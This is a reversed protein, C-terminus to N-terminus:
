RNEKITKLNNYKYSKVLEMNQAHLTKEKIKKLREEILKKNEEERIEDEDPTDTVSSWKDDSEDESKEVPKNPTKAGDRELQEYRYIWYKDNLIKKMEKKGDKASMEFINKYAWDVSFMKSDQIDRILNLKTSILDLKLQERILSPENLELEFNNLKESDFGLAYLHLKAMKTLMPIIMTTQIREVTRSFREDESALTTRSNMSEEYTLFSKPIKLAAFLKNLMYELDAIDIGSLGPLTDIETGYKNGRKTVFFDDLVSKAMYKLNMKGTKPDIVPTKKISKKVEQVHAKAAAPKLNGTDIKFIRREAARTVRNILMADEMMKMSQWHRIAGRLMSTGYPFHNTESILKFHAVEYDELKKKKNGDLIYHNNLGNTKNDIVRDLRGPNIQHFNTIGFKDTINLILMNDGRKVTNRVWGWLNTKIDLVNYFLIHLAEILVEDDSNIKLLEGSEDKVTSEDAYIDLASSILPDMDMDDFDAYRNQRNQLESNEGFTGQMLTEYTNKGYLYTGIRDENDMSTKSHKKYDKGIVNDVKYSDGSKSTIVIDTSFLQKMSQVFKNNKQQKVM